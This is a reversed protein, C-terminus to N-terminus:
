CKTLLPISLIMEWFLSRENSLSTVLVSTNLLSFVTSYIDKHIFIQTQINSFKQFRLVTLIRFYKIM